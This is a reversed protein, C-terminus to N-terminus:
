PPLRHTATTAALGVTMTVTAWGQGAGDRDIAAVIAGARAYVRAAAEGSSIAAGSSGASFVLAVRGTLEGM